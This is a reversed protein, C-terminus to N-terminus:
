FGAIAALAAISSRCAVGGSASSSGELAVAENSYHLALVKGEQVEAHARSASSGWPFAVNLHNFFNKVLTNNNM